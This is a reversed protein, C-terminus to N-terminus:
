IACPHEIGVRTFHFVFGASKFSPFSTSSLSFGGTFLLVVVFGPLFPIYTKYRSPPHMVERSFM